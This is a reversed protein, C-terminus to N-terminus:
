ITNFCVVANKNMEDTNEANKLTLIYFKEENYDDM